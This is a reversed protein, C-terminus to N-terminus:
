LRQAPPFLRHEAAIRVLPIERGLFLEDTYPSYRDSSEKSHTVACRVKYIRDAVLTRLTADDAQRFDLSPVQTFPVTAGAFYDAAGTLYRDLDVALARVDLHSHLVAYLANLESWKISEQSVGLAQAAPKVAKRIDAPRELVGSVATVRDRLARFWEEEMSYELVHYYGMFAAFADSAAIARLYRESLEEDLDHTDGLLQDGIVGTPTGQGIAAVFEPALLPLQRVLRPQSSGELRDVDLVPALVVDSEYALRGRFATAARELEDTDTDQPGDVRLALLRPLAAVRLVRQASIRAVSGEAIGRRKEQGLLHDFLVRRDLVKLWEMGSQRLALRLLLAASPPGVTIKLPGLPTSIEHRTAPVGKTLPVSGENEARVLMELSSPGVIQTDPRRRSGVLIDALTAVAEFEAEVEWRARPRDDFELYKGRLQQDIEAIDTGGREIDASVTLVVRQEDEERPEHDTVLVSLVRVIATAVEEVDTLENPVGYGGGEDTEQPQEDM